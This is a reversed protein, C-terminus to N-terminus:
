TLRESLNLGEKILLVFYGEQFVDPSAAQEGIIIKSSEEPLLCHHQARHYSCL